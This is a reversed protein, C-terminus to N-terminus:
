NTPLNKNLWGRYYQVSTYNDIAGYFGQEWNTAETNQWSSLGVIHYVGNKIVYAPSGSDGGGSIGELDLARNSPSNFQFSIWQGDVKDIQNQAVRKQLDSPKMGVLGNGTDGQGALYVIDNPTVQYNFLKVSEVEKIPKSIKVLAIDFGLQQDKWKEHVVRDIISLKESSIEAKDNSELFHAVHAATLVWGEGLYTGSGVVYTKGEHLTTFTVLAPILKTQNIYKSDEVDHRIIIANASQVMSVIFMTLFLIRM